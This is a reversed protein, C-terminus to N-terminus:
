QHDVGIVEAEGAIDILADDFCVLVPNQRRGRQHRIAARELVGYSPRVGMWREIDPTV